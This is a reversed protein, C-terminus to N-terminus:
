DVGELRIINLMERNLELLRSHINFAKVSKAHSMLNIFSKNISDRAEMWEVVDMEGCRQDDEQLMVVGKEPDFLARGTLPIEQDDLLKSADKLSQIVSTGWPEAAVELFSYMDKYRANLSLGEDMDVTLFKAM